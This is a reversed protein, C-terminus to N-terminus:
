GNFIALSSRFLLTAMLWSGAIIWCAAFWRIGCARTLGIGILVWRWIESILLLSPVVAILLAAGSAYAYVGFFTEFTTKRGISLGMIVYGLLALLVMMGVANTFRIAAFVLRQGPSHILLSATFFFIGSCGLFVFPAARKGPNPLESFFHSPSFLLRTLNVGYDRLPINDITKLPKMKVCRNDEGASGWNKEADTGRPSRTM